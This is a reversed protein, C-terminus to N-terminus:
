ILKEKSIMYDCNYIDKQLTGTIDMLRFKITEMIDKLEINSCEVCREDLYDLLDGAKKYIVM